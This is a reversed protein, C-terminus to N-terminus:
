KSEFTMLTNEYVIEDDHPVRNDKYILPPEDNGSFSYDQTIFHEFAYPIGEGLLPSPKDIIHFHLHPADSNGSNGLKGIIQGKSVRDGKHVKVSNPILHAYFAYKHNGLDIIVYNGAINSLTIPYDRGLPANDPIGDLVDVVKGDAVAYLPADYSYYNENKNPNDKYYNGDAGFQMFDIAYREPYHTIGHATVHALRHKSTNSPGNIAMWHEGKLPSGMLLPKDRNIGTPAAVLIFWDARGSEEQSKLYFRHMITRPLERGQNLEISLYIVHRIGPHAILEENNNMEKAAFSHLMKKLQEHDFSSIPHNPNKGDFIEVKELSFPHQGINSLFIEYTLYRKGNIVIPAPKHLVQAEMQFYVLDDDNANLHSQTAQASLPM